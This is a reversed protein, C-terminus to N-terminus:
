PSNFIRKLIFEWITALSALIGLAWLIGKTLQSMPLKAKTNKIKQITPNTFAQEFSQNGSNGVSLNGYNDGKVEVKTHQINHIFPTTPTPEYLSKLRALEAMGDPDLRAIIPTNPDAGKLSLSLLDSVWIEKKTRMWQGLQTGFWTSSHPGDQVFDNILPRINVNDNYNALYKYIEYKYDKRKNPNNNNMKEREEDTLKAELLWNDFTVLSNQPDHGTLNKWTTLAKDRNDKIEIRNAEKLKYLLKRAEEQDDGFLSKLLENIPHWSNDKFTYLYDTIEQLM